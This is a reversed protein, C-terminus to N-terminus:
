KKFFTFYFYVISTFLCVLAFSLLKFIEPLFDIITLNRIFVGYFCELGWNMPSIVSIIRMFPPMAFIPVWIGGIAALIVVAAAGFNAAQQHSKAITGIAIGFSIAALSSSAVILILAVYHTGTELAPLGALPLVYIGMIIMLGFQLLCVLLYTTIKALLYLTYNCPMTMLRSFSGEEREKIMNASLSIVIFFIAFLAWAPVNHQVSNPIINSKEPIAYQEKYSIVRDPHADIDSYVIKGLEHNINDLTIKYEVRGTLERLSSMITAKFSAKTTPDILIIIHASDEAKVKYRPLKNFALTISRKISRKLKYTCSDPIIIGLQYHGSAVQRRIKKESNKEPNLLTLHFMESRSIENIVIASLSDNDNDLIVIPVRNERLTKYTNDQLITMIFVLAVPMLFLLLLGAKDKILLLIDKYTLSLFKQM